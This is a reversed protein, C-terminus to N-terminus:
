SSHSTSTSTRPEGDGITGLYRVACSSKKKKEEEKKKDKKKTRVMGGGIPVVESVVLHLCGRKLVESSPDGGLAGNLQSM